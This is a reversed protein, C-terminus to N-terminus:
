ITQQKGTSCLDILQSLFFKSDLQERFKTHNASFSLQEGAFENFHNGIDYACYNHAGYEYDIFTVHDAFFYLLQNGQSPKCM